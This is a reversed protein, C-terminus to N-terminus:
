VVGVPERTLLAGGTLEYSDPDLSLFFQRDDSLDLDSYDALYKEVLVFLDNNEKTYLYTVNWLIDLSYTNRAYNLAIAKPDILKGGAEVTTNLETRIAQTTM